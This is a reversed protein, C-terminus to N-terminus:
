RIDEDIAYMNFFNAEEMVPIELRKAEIIAHGNVNEPIDGVLVCDVSQDFNRFVTASYSSLISEVDEPTGHSFTGTIYIKKDRFIPSGDVYTNSKLIHLNPINFMEFCDSCNEVNKLWMVLRSFAHPDCGIDTIIADPHQFYYVLAEESNNCGDCIMKIQDKGPLIDKPIIARVVENLTANIPVDKYEDLDFVDLLSFITGIDDTVEKYRDFTMPEMRLTSLMQVVRPYLVSNCQPDDCRFSRVSASPVILKKGCGSCVITKPLTTADAHYVYIIKGDSNMVVSSNKQINYHVVQPYPVTHITDSGREKIDGLIDGYQNTYCEVSDVQFMTLGTSPYTIVGDKRFLIYSPILPFRFQFNKKVMDEFIQETVGMPVVYGPLTNFGNLTLWQRIPVPAGNFATGMGQVDGAYLSFRKPEKKYADLYKNITCEPLRGRGFQLESSYLLARIFCTGGAIKVHNPVQKELLMTTLIDDTIDKWVNAEHGTYVKEIAGSDKYQLTVPLGLPVVTVYEGAELLNRTFM